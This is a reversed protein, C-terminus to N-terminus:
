ADHNPTYRATTKSTESVEVACIQPFTKQFIVFLHKAINEASPQISPWVENLCKHDLTSDIYKKIPELERYDIVFGNQNLKAACLEVTVIYNHGHMNSCPHTSPLGELFHGASFHFEKRIVYM